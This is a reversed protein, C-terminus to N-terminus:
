ILSFVILQKYSFQGIHVASSGMFKLLLPPALTGVFSCVQTNDSLRNNDETTDVLYIEASTIATFGRAGSLTM